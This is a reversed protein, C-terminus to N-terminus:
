PKRVRRTRGTNLDLDQLESSCRYHVEKMALFTMPERLQERDRELAAALELLVEDGHARRRIGRIADELILVAARYDGVRNRDLAEERAKAAYLKATARVAERDRPQRDYAEGEEHRFVVEGRSEGLAGNRDRVEVSVPRAEGPANPALELRLVLDLEQEAMLDGLAIRVTGAAAEHAYRNLPTVRVGPPAKVEVVVERAVVELAEGLEGALCDPIQEAREVFYFRGGGAAAIGQLLREDFDAGLGIATTAVGGRRAEAARATLEGPSTVGRNALGDTLLLCRGIAEGGLGGAVERVGAAWGGHLDTCGRADVGRLRESADRRADPTAAAAPSVVEVEDDYTVVSFRDDARLAEVAQLVATKALDLKAGAMSGSRDVVFSVHVPSRKKATAGGPATLRILLHRVGGGPRVLQRDAHLELKLPM